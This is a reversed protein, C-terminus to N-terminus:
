ACPAGSEVTLTEDTTTEMVASDNRRVVRLRGTVTQFTGSGFADGTNGTYVFVDDSCDLNDAGAFPVGTDDDILQLKYGINNANDITWSFWAVWPVGCAPPTTTTLSFTLVSPVLNSAVTVLMRTAVLM